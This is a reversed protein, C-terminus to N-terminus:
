ECLLAKITSLFTDEEEEEKECEALRASEAQEQRSKEVAAKKKTKADAVLKQHNSKHSQKWDVTQCETSCYVVSGCPCKRLKPATTDACRSCQKPRFRDFWFKAAGVSHRLVARGAPHTGEDLAENLVSPKHALGLYGLTAELPEHYIGRGGPRGGAGGRADVVVEDELVRVLREHLADVKAHVIGWDHRGQRMIRDVEVRLPELDDRASVSPYGKPDM